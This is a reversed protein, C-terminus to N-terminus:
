GGFVLSTVLASLPFGTMGSVAVVQGDIYPTGAVGQASSMAEVLATAIALREPDTMNQIAAVIMATTIHGTNDPVQDAFQRAIRIQNLADTLEISM